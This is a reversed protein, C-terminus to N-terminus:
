CVNYTGTILRPVSDYVFAYAYYWVEYGCSSYAVDNESKYYVGLKDLFKDIQVLDEECTIEIKNFKELIDAYVM